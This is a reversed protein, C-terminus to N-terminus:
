IPHKKLAPGLTAAVNQRQKGNDGNNIIYELM